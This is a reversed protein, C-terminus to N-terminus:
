ENNEEEEDEHYDFKTYNISYKMLVRKLPRNKNWANIFAIDKENPYDKVAIVHGKKEGYCTDVIVNDGKRLEWNPCEFVYPEKRQDEDLTVLAYAIYTDTM